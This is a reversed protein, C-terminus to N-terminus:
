TKPHPRRTIDFIDIHSDLYNHATGILTAIENKSLLGVVPIQSRNLEHFNHMFLSAM